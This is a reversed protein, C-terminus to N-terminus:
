QGRILLRMKGIKKIVKMRSIRLNKRTNGPVFTLRGGDRRDGREIEYNKIEM